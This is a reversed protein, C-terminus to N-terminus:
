SEKQYKKDGLDFPYPQGHNEETGESIPPVTSSILGHNSREVNNKIYQKSIM